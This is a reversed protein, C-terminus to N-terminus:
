RAQFAQGQERDRGADPSPWWLAEQVQLNPPSHFLAPCAASLVALLARPTLQTKHCAQITTSKLVASCDPSAALVRRVFFDSLLVVTTGPDQHETVLIPGIIKYPRGQGSCSCLFVQERKTVTSTTRYKSAPATSRATAPATAAETATWTTTRRTRV